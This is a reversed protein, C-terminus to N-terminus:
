RPPAQASLIRQQEARASESLPGGPYRTVLEDLKRLALDHQGHREAAMAASFLDNQEALRSVSAPPTPNGSALPLEKQAPAPAAISTARVAAPRHAGSRISQAAPSPVAAPTRAAAESATAHDIRQDLCPTVWTDGPQLVIQKDGSHVWVAGESVHVASSSASDRCSSPQDEVTVTFVTGRVEVESDPTSVVFREGPALKAVHAQLRGSFLSFRRTSSLDDVRLHGSSSLTIRTGNGL